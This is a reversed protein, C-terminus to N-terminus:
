EFTTIHPPSDPVIHYTIRDSLVEYVKINSWAEVSEVDRVNKFLFWRGDPFRIVAVPPLYFDNSYMIEVVVEKWYLHYSILSRNNFDFVRLEWIYEPSKFFCPLM